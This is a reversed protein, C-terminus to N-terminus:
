IPIAVCSLVEIRKGRSSGDEIQVLKQHPENEFGPVDMPCVTARVGGGICSSKRNDLDEVLVKLRELLQYALPEDQSSPFM